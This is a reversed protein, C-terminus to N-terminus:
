FGMHKSRVFELDYRTTGIDPEQGEFPLRNPSIERWSEGWKETLYDINIDNVKKLLERVEGNGKTGTNAGGGEKYYGTPDNYGHLFQNRLGVKKVIPRHAMRMIYDADECYAPYTNEDFLGLAQIVKDSIAFCDWTGIDWEGPAPHVMGMEEDNKFTQDIEALCGPNFAVDDNVILWYKANMYSKITLNWAGAVGINAPMHVVKMQKINPHEMKVLNNLYDDYEGKGNNNIIVLDDVPYDISSILRTVWYVSDVLAVGIVPISM